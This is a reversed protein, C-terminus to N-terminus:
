KYFLLFKSNDSITIIQKEHNIFLDYINNKYNPTIIIGNDDLLNLLINQVNYNLIYNPCFEIFIVNFKINDFIHLNKISDIKGNIRYPFDEYLNLGLYYDIYNNINIINNLTNKWKSEVFSTDNACLILINEM